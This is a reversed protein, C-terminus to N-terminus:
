AAGEDHAHGLAARLGRVGSRVRVASPRWGMMALPVVPLLLAEAVTSGVIWLTADLFFEQPFMAILYHRSPDLQWYDNSFSLQHFARFLFQFGVLAGLGTLVVLGLTVGGGLSLLWGLHRLFRRRAMLLGVVAFVALYAGTALQIKYVGRVLGKVDKMHLVERETDIISRLVGGKVVRVDLLDEDNNFYDRIQRGAKILESREIGTWAPIDYKDFGYSYLVTANIVWRVNTAVLFVPVAAVFLAFLVYKVTRMNSGM